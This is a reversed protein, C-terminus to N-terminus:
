QNHEEMYLGGNIISTTHVTLPHSKSKLEEVFTACKIEGLFASSEGRARATLLPLSVVTCHNCTTHVLRTPLPYPAPLQIKLKLKNLQCDFTVQTTRLWM